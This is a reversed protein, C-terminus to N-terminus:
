KSLPFNRKAAELTSDPSTNFLFKTKPSKERVANVIEEFWVTMEPNGRVGFGLVIGDWHPQREKLAELLTTTGEEPVAAFTVFDYGAAKCDAETKDLM